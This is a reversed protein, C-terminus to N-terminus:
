SRRGSPSRSSASASTGAAGPSATWRAWSGCWSAWPSSRRSPTPRRWFSGSRIATTPSSTIWPDRWHQLLRATVPTVTSRLGAEGLSRWAAAKSRVENIYDNPKRQGADDELDLAGQTKLKHKPPPVPVVFESRRRGEAPSGTPIGNEDLVWHRASEAFPSNLIPDDNVM